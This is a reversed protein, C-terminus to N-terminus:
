LMFVQGLTRIYALLTERSQKINLPLGDPGKIEMVTYTTTM